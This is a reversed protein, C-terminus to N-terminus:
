GADGEYALPPSPLPLFSWVVGAAQCLPQGSAWPFSVLFIWRKVQEGAPDLWLFCQEAGVAEAGSATHPCSGELGKAVALSPGM